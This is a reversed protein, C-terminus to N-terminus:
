SVTIVSFNFSTIAGYIDRIEVSLQLAYNANTNGIPLYVDMATLKTFGIPSQTGSTSSSALIFLKYKKKDFLLYVM